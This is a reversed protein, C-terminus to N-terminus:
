LGGGVIGGGVVRYMGRESGLIWVKVFVRSLILLQQIIFIIIIKFGSTMGLAGEVKFYLIFLLIPVILLSLYLFYTSLFHKIVFGAARFLTRFPKYGEVEVMMVKAYDTVTLIFIFLILHIIVGAAIKYFLVAENEATSFTSDIISGITIYIVGAIIVQIVISYIALRLFRSFYVASGEWFTRLSYKDEERRLVTLIGGEFFITFLLYFVGMWVAISLYPAIAKGYQNIFDNYVTYDFDKVLSSFAMSNGAGNEITNEFPIALVLALLLTMVYIILTLKKTKGALLFGAVYASIIKM